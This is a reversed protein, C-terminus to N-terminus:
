HQSQAAKRLVQQSSVAPLACPITHATADKSCRMTACCKGCRAAVVVAAAAVVSSSVCVFESRPQIPAAESSQASTAAASEYELSSMAREPSHTLAPSSSRAPRLLSLPLAHSTTKIESQTYSGSYPSEHTRRLPSLLMRAWLWTPPHMGYRRVTPRLADQDHTNTANNQGDAHVTQLTVLSRTHLHRPLLNYSRRMCIRANDSVGLQLIHRPVFFPLRRQGSGQCDLPKPDTLAVAMGM